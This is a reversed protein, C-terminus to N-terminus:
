LVACMWGFIAFLMENPLLSVANELLVTRLTVLMEIARRVERPAYAHRQPSWVYTDPLWRNPGIVCVQRGTTYAILGRMQDFAVSRPRLFGTWCKSIFRGDHTFALLQHNDNDVLIIRGQNIVCVRTHRLMCRYRDVEGPASGDFDFLVTEKRACLVRVRNRRSDVVVIRDRERDYAVGGINSFGEPLDTPDHEFGISGQLELTDMSLISLNEAKLDSVIARGRTNDLTLHHAPMFELESSKSKTGDREKPIRLVSGDVYSVLEIIRQKHNFCIVRKRAVDLKFSLDWLASPEPISECELTIKAVIAGSHASFVFVAKHHEDCVLLQGREVDFEVDSTDLFYDGRVFRAETGLSYLLRREFSPRTYNNAHAM